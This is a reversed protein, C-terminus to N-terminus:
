DKQFKKEFIYSHWKWASKIITQLDSMKTNWKLENFAKRSNAILYDPDGIRRKGFKYNIKRDIYKEIASIVELVSYGSQHGLNYEHYGSNILLNSYSKIHADALDSVHIYDRVCTGDPTDYDNGFVIFHKNEYLISNIIRPILHTEISRLEGIRGSSHAGAANFYRLCVANLSKTECYSKIIKETELKSKGYPSVPNKLSDEDIKIKSTNGFISASSSYILYNTGNELMCNILNKTGIVNNLYYYDPMDLSESVISKGAFHFVAEFKKNKLKNRLDELNTIDVDIHECNNILLRHGTSLNDLVAVEYGEDLLHKVMHSGIYGAGGTILFKM